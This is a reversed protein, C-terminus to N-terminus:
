QEQVRTVTKYNRKNEIFNENWKFQTKKADLGNPRQTLNQNKDERWSNEPPKGM